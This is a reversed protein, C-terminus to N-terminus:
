ANDKKRITVPGSRAAWAQEEALMEAKSPIHFRTTERYERSYPDLAPDPDIMVGDEIKYPYGTEDSIQEPDDHLFKHHRERSGREPNFHHLPRRSM